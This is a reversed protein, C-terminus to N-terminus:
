GAQIESSVHGEPSDFFGSIAPLGSREADLFEDVLLENTDKCLISRGPRQLPLAAHRLYATCACIM